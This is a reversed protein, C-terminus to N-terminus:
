LLDETSIWPLPSTTPPPPQPDLGDGSAMQLVSGFIKGRIGGKAQAVLASIRTTAKTKDIKAHRTSGQVDLQLMYSQSIDDVSFAHQIATGTLGVVMQVKDKIFDVRGWTAIPYLENVLMDLRECQIVGDRFSLYLPTFWVTIQDAKAPKLIDLITGLQGENGFAVKGLNIEMKPMTFNELSFPSLPLTFGEPDIIFRLPHDASKAGSFLPVVDQLVNQSLEPTINVEALLPRSLTFIGNNVEGQLSVNGQTGEVDVTVSGNRDCLHTEITADVKEGLLSDARKQIEEGFFLLNCMAGFPIQQLQAQLQFDLASLDIRGEPTWGNKMSGEVFINGREEQQLVPDGDAKLSFHLVEALNKSFFTGVIDVFRLNQERKLDTVLVQDMGFELSFHADQLWKKGKSALPIDLNELQCHITSPEQLFLSDDQKKVEKLNERLVSFAEPSLVWDFIIPNGPTCILHDNKITFTGEGRVRESSLAFSAEGQKLRDGERKASIEGSLTPGLLYVLDDRKLLINLLPVPLSKATGYLGVTAQNWNLNGEATLGDQISAKGFFEGPTQSAENITRGEWQVQIQQTIANWEWPISVDYVEILPIGERGLAFQPFRIEGQWVEGESADSGWLVPDKTFFSWTVPTPQVLGPQSPKLFGLDTLASTTLTYIGEAPKNLLLHGQEDVSGEISFHILDSKIEGRLQPLIFAGTKSSALKADLRIETAGGIVAPTIGQRNFSEIKATVFAKGRDLSSGDLHFRMDFLQINGLYPLAMWQLAEGAVDFDVDIQAWLPRESDRTAFPISFKNLSLTLHVEEKLFPIASAPVFRALLPRSLSFDVLLPEATELTKGLTFPINPINVHETQIHFSGELKKGKERHFEIASRFHEGLIDTVVSETGLVLDVLALPLNETEVQLDVANKESHFLGLGREWDPMSAHLQLPFTQEEQIWESTFYLAVHKESPEQELSLSTNQLEVINKGNASQLYIPSISLEGNWQTQTWDMAFPAWSFPLLSDNINAHLTIPKKLRFPLPTDEGALFKAAGPTLTWDITGGPMLHITGDYIEAIGKSQLLPAKVSSHFRLGNKEADVETDLTIDIVDGVAQIMLGKWEPKFLALARDLIPTPLHHVNAHIQTQHKELFETWEKLDSPLSNESLSSTPNLFANVVFEGKEKGDYTTGELAFAYAPGTSLSFHQLSANVHHVNIKAKPRNKPLFAAFHTGLSRGLNSSGAEDANLVATFNEVAFPSFFPSQQLLLGFLSHDITAADFSVVKESKEDLLLFGQASQSGWWTLHLEEVHISGPIQQNVLAVLHDKGWSTSLISPLFAFLTLLVLFISGLIGFFWRVFRRTFRSKNKEQAM